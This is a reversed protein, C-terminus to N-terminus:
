IFFLTPVAFELEPTRPARRIEAAGDLVELLLLETGVEDDEDTDLTEFLLETTLEGDEDTDLVMEEDGDPGLLLELTETEAEPLALEVKDVELLLTAVVDPDGEFLAFAVEGLTEDEEIVLEVDAGSLVPTDLPVEELELVPVPGKLLPVDDDLLAPDVPDLTGRLVPTEVEEEDEEEILRLVPSAPETEELELEVPGKPLPVVLAVGPGVPVATVVVDLEVLMETELEDFEVVLVESVAVTVVAGIVVAAEEPVESEDEEVPTKVLEVVAAFEVVVVVVVAAANANGSAPPM